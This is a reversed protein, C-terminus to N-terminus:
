SHSRLKNYQYRHISSFVYKEIRSWKEMEGSAGKEYNAVGSCSFDKFFARSLIVGTLITM